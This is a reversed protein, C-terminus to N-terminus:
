KVLNLLEQNMARKFMQTSNVPENKHELYVIKPLKVAIQKDRLMENSALWILSTNDLKTVKTKLLSSFNKNSSKLMRYQSYSDRGFIRNCLWKAIHNNAQSEKTVCKSWSRLQPLSAQVKKTNKPNELGVIIFDAFDNWYLKRSDWGNTMLDYRLMWIIDSWDGASIFLHLNDWFVKPHNEYMWIMRLLSETKAAGGKQPVKLAEGNALTVMKYSMRLYIIFKMLVTINDSLRSCDFEILKVSRPQRFNKKNLFQQIFKHM